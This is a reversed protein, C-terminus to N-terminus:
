KLRKGLENSAELFSIVKAKRGRLMNEMSQMEKQVRNVVSVLNTSIRKQIVQSPRLSLRRGM